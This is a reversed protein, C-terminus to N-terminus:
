QQFFNFFKEKAPYDKKLSDIERNIEIADMFNEKITYLDLFTEDFETSSLKKSNIYKELRAAMGRYVSDRNNTDKNSQFEMAIFNDHCLSKKYSYEFGDDPLSDVFEVGEKYKKLAILLRFKLEIVSKKISDCDMSRNVLVLASDLSSKKSFNKYALEKAKKFNDYCIIEKDHAIYCACMQSQFIVILGFKYFRTLNIQQTPM